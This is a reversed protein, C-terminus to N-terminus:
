WTGTRPANGSWSVRGSRPQQTRIRWADPWANNWRNGAGHVWGLPIGAYTVLAEGTAEKAPLTEGRLYAIAQQENVEVSPFADRDLLLSTALAPHPRQRDGKLYSVPTGPTLVHLGGLLQHVPGAWRADISCTIEQHVISHQEVETRVGHLPASNGHSRIAREAWTGPKRLAAVFFGEGKVRHPYCRHGIIGNAEVRVAGWAPDFAPDIATAGLAVLSALQEENESPEWTCTSYVLTGGPALANWAHELIGRQTITCQRVLETSWQERAFPDKRFMGEGSCPADLVILDFLGEVRDLDSPDSNSVLVNPLGWKWLNEQLIGARRRDIENAVLLSGPTLLSRLHTSKGGPAACLDLAILDNQLMGSAKLVPELLMSSAEQVYYAGAHLLPDFTFAPREPLYHGTACWPVREAEPRFPKFPNVRISVPSLGTLSRELADVDEGLLPALTTRLEDPLGTTPTTNRAPRWAKPRSM